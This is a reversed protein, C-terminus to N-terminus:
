DCGIERMERDVAVIRRVDGVVMWAACMTLSATVWGAFSARDAWTAQLVADVYAASAFTVGINGSLQLWPSMVWRRLALGVLSMLPCGILMGIWVWAVRHGMAQSVTGPPAGLLAAQGGAAIYGTYIIVQFPRVSRLDGPGIGAM